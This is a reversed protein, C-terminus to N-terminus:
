TEGQERIQTQRNTQLQGTHEADWEALVKTVLHDIVPRIADDPVGNIDLRAILDKYMDRLREERDDPSDDIGLRSLHTRVEAAQKLTAMLGVLRLKRAMGKGITFLLPPLVRQAHGEGYRIFLETPAALQNAIAGALLGVCADTLRVPARRAWSNAPKTSYRYEATVHRLLASTSAHTFYQSAPRYAMDYLHIALTAGTRSDIQETMSRVNPLKCPDGLARIAERIVSDPIIGTSSMFTLLTPAIKIESERLKRVADPGHLCWLGVICTEM